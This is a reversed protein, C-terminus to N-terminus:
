ETPPSKWRKVLMQPLVLFEIVGLALLAYGLEGPFGEIRGFSIAVALAITLAGALRVAGIIFFRARARQDEANM